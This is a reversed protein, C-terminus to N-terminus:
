KSIILSNAISLLSPRFVDINKNSVDINNRHKKKIINNIQCNVTKLKERTKVLNETNLTGDFSEVM